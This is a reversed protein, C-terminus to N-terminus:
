DNLMESIKTLLKEPSVPKEVFQSKEDLFGKRSILDATYGSTFLVRIDDRIKRAADCVERGNVKPLIVDLLLLDIRDNNGAFKDIADEGDNAEIVNYGFSELIERSLNRVCEDDEAM